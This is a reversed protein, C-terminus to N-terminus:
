KNKPIVILLCKPVKLAKSNSYRTMEDNREVIEVNLRLKFILYKTSCFM